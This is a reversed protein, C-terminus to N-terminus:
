TLRPFQLNGGTWKCNPYGYFCSGGVDKFTDLIKATAPLTRLDWHGLVFIKTYLTFVIPTNLTINTNEFPRPGSPFEISSSYPGAPWTNWQDFYQYSCSLYYKTPTQPPGWQTQGEGSSIDTIIPRYLGLATFSGYSLLIKRGNPAVKHVTYFPKYSIGPPVIKNVIRRLYDETSLTFILVLNYNVTDQRVWVDLENTLGWSSGWIGPAPEGNWPDDQLGSAGAYRFFRWSWGAWWDFEGNLVVKDQPLSIKKISQFPGLNIKLGKKITM